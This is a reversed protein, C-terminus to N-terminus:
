AASRVSLEALRAMVADYAAGFGELGAALLTDGIADLSLGRQELTALVEATRRDDIEAVEPRGHDAFALLTKEPVTVITGPIALSEVYLVDRYAPNKTATSAWLPRQWAAGAAALEDWGIGSFIRQARQHIVHANAIAISQEPSAPGLLSEVHADVRSVFVSAVSRIGHVPEGGALRRELGRRYARAAAEYRGPAFLLTVNVNIGQFTLEEIATMGADTGPVKVMLNPADVREWVYRAQRVTAAADDAVDPTCEFSVYGDRGSSAEFTPRLLRAADAVDDLALSFFLARPDRAGRSRLARIRPAYRDADALAAAFIAPNSTVGSVAHRAIYRQLTGTDLLRRSLDDLWISVGADHLAQVPSHPSTTM